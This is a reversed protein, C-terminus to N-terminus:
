CINWATLQPSKQVTVWIKGITSEDIEETLNTKCSPFYRLVENAFETDIRVIKSIIDLICIFEHKNKLFVRKVRGIFLPFLNGNNFGSYIVINSFEDPVDYATSGRFSTQGIYKLDDAMHSFTDESVQVLIWSTEM